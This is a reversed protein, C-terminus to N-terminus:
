PSKKLTIKPSSNLRLTVMAYAYGYQAQINM